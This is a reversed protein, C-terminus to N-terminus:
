FEFPLHFQTSPHSPCLFGCGLVSSLAVSLLQVGLQKSSHPFSGLSGTQGPVGSARPEPGSTHPCSPSPASSLPSLQLDAGPVASTPAETQKGWGVCMVPLRANVRLQFGLYSFSCMVHPFSLSRTSCGLPRLVPEGWLLGVLWSMGGQVSPM